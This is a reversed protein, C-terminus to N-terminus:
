IDDGVTWVKWGPKSAPPVLMALNTQRCASPFPGTIHHTKGEPTGLGLILMHEALWGEKKGLWSAIRLALCKKGLLANGGYGSGVSWITNEEPFHCIFRRDPSLDGLSHLCRTFDDSAGLHELAMRGIRTMIRMNLVVYRSDTIEVGVKSFRSGPPGMLFPVVYMTRGKMAGRYLGSLKARAEKPAMWNNNPGADQKDETCVFTLHETRAVDHPASRHLYCGPLKSQNLEILEGTALCERILGDREAESGDCFVVRDPATLDKIQEVWKQIAANQAKMRRCYPVTSSAALRGSGTTPHGSVM